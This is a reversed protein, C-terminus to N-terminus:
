DNAMSCTVCNRLLSYMYKMANSSQKFKVEMSRTNCVKSSTYHAVNLEKIIKIRVMQPKDAGGIVVESGTDKVLNLKRLISKIYTTGHRAYPLVHLCKFEM